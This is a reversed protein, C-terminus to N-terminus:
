LRTITLKSFVIVSNRHVLFVVIVLNYFLFRVYVMYLIFLLNRNTGNKNVSVRFIEILSGTYEHKMKRSSNNGLSRQTKPNRKKPAPAGANMWGSLSSLSAPYSLSAPNLLLQSTDPPPQLLAQCAKWDMARLILQMIERTVHKLGLLGPVTQCAIDSIATLEKDSASTM